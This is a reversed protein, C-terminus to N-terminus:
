KTESFAFMLIIKDLQNELNNIASLTVRCVFSKGGATIWDFEGESFTNESITKVIESFKKFSAPSLLKGLDKKQLELRKYGFVEFFLKNATKFNANADIELYPISGKMAKVMGQLENQKEKAETVFDAFMMVKQPQGNLDFIPNFTGNLWQEKGQKDIHKFVGSFFQGNQLSEWLLMSQPNNKDEDPLLIAYDNGVLEDPKYGTIGM